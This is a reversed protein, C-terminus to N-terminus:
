DEGNRGKRGIKEEGEDNDRGVTRRGLLLFGWLGGEVGVSGGKMVVVLGGSGASWAGERCAHGGGKKRGVVM